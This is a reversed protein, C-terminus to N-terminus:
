NTTGAAEQNAASGSLSLVKVSAPQVTAGPNSKESKSSASLFKKNDAKGRCALMMVRRQLWYYKEAIVLSLTKGFM